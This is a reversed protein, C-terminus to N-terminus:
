LEISSSHSSFFEVKPKEIIKEHPMFVGEKGINGFIIGNETSSVKVSAQLSPFLSPPLFPLSLFYYGVTTMFVDNM